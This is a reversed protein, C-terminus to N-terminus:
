RKKWALTRLRVPLRRHSLCLMRDCSRGGRRWRTTCLRQHFEVTSLQSAASEWMAAMVFNGGRERLSLPGIPVPLSGNADILMLATSQEFRSGVNMADRVADVSKLATNGDKHRFDLRRETPQRFEVRPGDDVVSKSSSLGKRVSAVEPEIERKSELGPLDEPASAGSSPPNALIPDVTGGLPATTPFNTQWVVFDAGDVDGDGDADGTEVTAGSTTPFHTQWVVFDAGDVDQDGDFDGPPPVPPELNFLVWMADGAVAVDVRGDKDFDAATLAFPNQGVAYTLQPSFTGDGLNQLVSVTDDGYNATIIEPRGDGNLDAAVVGPPNTPSPSILPRRRQRVDGRPVGANNKTKGM